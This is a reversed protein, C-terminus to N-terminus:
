WLCTFHTTSPQLHLTEWKLLRLSSGAEFDWQVQLQCKFMEQKETQELNILSLLFPTAPIVSFRYKYLTLFPKIGGGLLESNCLCRLINKKQQDLCVANPYYVCQILRQKAGPQSRHGQAVKPNLDLCQTHKLISHLRLCTCRCVLWTFLCSDAHACM